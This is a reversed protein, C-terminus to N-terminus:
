WIYELYQKSLSVKLKKFTREFVEIDICPESYAMEIEETV